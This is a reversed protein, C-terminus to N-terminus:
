PADFQAVGNDANIRQNTRRGPFAPSRRSLVLLRGDTCRNLLVRVAPLYFEENVSATWSHCRLRISSLEHGVLLGARTHAVHSIRVHLWDHEWHSELLEVTAPEEVILEVARM